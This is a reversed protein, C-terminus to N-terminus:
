SGEVARGGVRPEAAHGHMAHLEEVVSVGEAGVLLPLVLDNEKGAHAAFSRVLAQAWAAAVAQEAAGEVADVLGLIVGHDAVLSPVLLRGAELTSAAAYFTREEGLAHPVLEARAWEVLAARAAPYGAADADRVRVAHATLEHVMREHHARVADAGRDDTMTTM